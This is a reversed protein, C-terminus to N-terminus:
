PGAARRFSLSRCIPAVSWGALSKFSACYREPHQLGYTDIFLRHVGFYTANGFHLALLQDLIAQCGATGGAVQLGCGECRNRSDGSTVTRTGM